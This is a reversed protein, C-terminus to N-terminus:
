GSKPLLKAKGRLNRRCNGRLTACRVIQASFEVGMELKCKGGLTEVVIEVYLVFGGITEEKGEKEKKEGCNRSCKRRSSSRPIHCRPFDILTNTKAM